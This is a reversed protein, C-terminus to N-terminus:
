EDSILEMVWVDSELDIVNFFFRSGDTTLANYSSLNPDDFRRLLKPIGGAVNISWFSTQFKEDTSRFYILNGDISWTAGTISGIQGHDSSNVLIQPVGGAPSILNLSAGGSYAILNGNPSWKGFFAGDFTLQRPNGWSMDKTEKMIVYLEIRGTRISIFIIQKGDPAWQPSREDTMEKTLQQLSGGEESMVYLDRNGNRFSHFVIETGDPSWDPFFDDSQHTTLQVPEGGALPMKYIDMNGSRNSDFVLWQGDPSVDMSEIIQNGTTVNTVNATSLRGRTPIPISGINSYKTFASYTLSKGDHSLNITHADLGTSLRIPSGTPRGSNEIPVQYLDRKGEKNSIYLLSNGDQTWIPSVNLVGDDIVKVPEGREVSIIWISSPAVNGFQGPEIVFNPNGSIYALLEGNPSWSLSHPAFADTIKRNEGGDVFQISIKRGELYALSLGDPSWAAQRANQVVRKATGGLAPIVYVTNNANFAIRRGDPSWQPWFHNGPIDDTLPIIRGGDIQRVYIHMQGVAGASYAIMNGDPSITPYLELGPQNTIQKTRGLKIVQPGSLNLYLTYAIVILLIGVSLGVWRSYRKMSTIAPVTATQTESIAKQCKRLDVILDNVSPYRDSVDKELSKNIIRELEMPIGSRLGTVPEPEENLISYTVAQDYDGKFPLQGTLMEFLLVGLSFIDSRFDVEEGRTQEPSMYSATGLTSQDKTLKPGGRVKALGFDMIKVEGKDTLMINASKIDRHVVGKEHAAQLGNAMQIAINLSEDITLPGSEIKDKLEQGKIYEMVIFTDNDMEEINYITGINPHNLSAAAKAEITFREREDHSSAIQHPLFKIAVERDLKTDEAKYVVGMGGEGLKELIRYHLIIKGQM